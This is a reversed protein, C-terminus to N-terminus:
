AFSRCMLNKFRKQKNKCHYCCVADPYEDFILLKLVLDNMVCQQLEYTDSFKQQPFYIFQSQYQFEDFKCGLSQEHWPCKAILSLRPPMICNSSVYCPQTFNLVFALWFQHMTETILWELMAKIRCTQIRLVKFTFRTQSTDIKM